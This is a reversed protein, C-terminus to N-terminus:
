PFAIDPPACNLNLSFHKLWGFFLIFYHITMSIFFFVSFFGNLKAIGMIKVQLLM